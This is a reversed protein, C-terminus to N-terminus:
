TYRSRRPSLISIAANGPLTAVTGSLQTAVHGPYVGEM